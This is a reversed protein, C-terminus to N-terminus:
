FSRSVRLVEAGVADLDASSGKSLSQGVGDAHGHGLLYTFAREGGLRM